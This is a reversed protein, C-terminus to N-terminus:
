SQMLLSRWVMMVFLRLHHVQLHHHHVQVLLFRQLLRLLVVMIKELVQEIQVFIMKILSVMKIWIKQLAVMTQRQVKKERVLMWKTLSETVMQILVVAWLLLVKRMLVNTKQCGNYTAEGAQDPCADDKDAIGDADRDPCGNLSVIGREQPCNDLRDIVGDGDIDPCGKGEASGVENPCADEEDAIGDGDADRKYKFRYGLNLLGTYYWDNKSSNASQSIGDLYDTFPMRFAAEAGLTLNRTLDYRIGGGFPINFFTSKANAKDLAIQALIDPNGTENFNVVPKGSLFGAGVNFYPSLIRKFTNDARYRKAGWPEFELMASADFLTSTFSFNRNGHTRDPYQADDGAIKGTILNLRASLRDGFYYRAFAGYGVHTQKFFFSECHTDGTYILGGGLLGLELGNHKAKTFDTTTTTTTTSVQANMSIYSLLVVVIINLHRM